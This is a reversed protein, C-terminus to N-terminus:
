TTTSLIKRCLIIFNQRAIPQVLICWFSIHSIGPAWVNTPTMIKCHMIKFRYINFVFPFHQENITRPMLQNIRRLFLSGAKISLRVNERPPFMTSPKAGAVLNSKLGIMKPMNRSLIIFNHPSPYYPPGPIQAEM